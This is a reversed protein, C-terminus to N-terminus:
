PLRGPDTRPEARLGIAARLYTTEAETWEGLLWYAIPVAAALTALKFVLLAGHAPWAQRCAWTVACSAGAARILTGAPPAVGLRSVALIAASAGATAVATTVM